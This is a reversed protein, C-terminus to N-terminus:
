FRYLIGTKIQWLPKFQQNDGLKVDYSGELQANIKQWLPYTAGLQLRLFPLQFAKEKSVTQVFVPTNSVTNLYEYEFEEQMKSQGLLSVGMYPKLKKESLVYQLGIAYQWYPQKVKVGDLSDNPTPPTIIKINLDPTIKDTEYSLFLYQIDGVIKWKEDILVRGRVGVSFGNQQVISPRNRYASGGLIGLEYGAIKIPKLIPTRKQNELSKESNEINEVANGENKDVIQAKQIAKEDNKSLPTDTISSDTKIPTDVKSIIPIDIKISDKQGNNQADAVRQLDNKKEIFLDNKQQSFSKIPEEKITKLPEDMDKHEIAIPKQADKDFRKEIVNKKEITSFDADSIATEAQKERVVTQFITDYRRVVVHHYVTDNKMDNKLSFVSPPVSVQKEVRLNHVEKTLDSIHRHADHLLWGGWTLVGMLTLLPLLLWAVLRKRWQETQFSDMHKEMKGWKQETFNFDIGENLKDGFIKDFNQENM